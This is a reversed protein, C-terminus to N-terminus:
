KEDEFIDVNTRYDGLLHEAFYDWLMRDFYRGYKGFGHKQGAMIMFDFRKNEKILANVMRITNGPHVNSDIDGHVLLLHGKLNKALEINTPVKIEFKTEYEVDSTDKEASSEEKDKKKKVKVEKVGHHKESWWQNYINNDHNGSSSVAVKFFDPYVLMAATSMFGGGSHGYIGVKDIDIFSYRDSLQEIAYKKDALGYDRLNGYGYNHYWKSRQPSGGRNGVAIVVFGIQALGVNDNTASFGKPVSEQQPGPYVHAIIPYKKEPDFDSPKWMVGYLDTVGDAAKVKFTEPIKWGAEELRSVDITELDMIKNGMYDRLVAKSVQDIRSFNDIFYKNSKSMSISHNANEPTILKLGEGDFGIRYYHSYYPDVDKERGSAAFYLVRKSTDIKTIGRRLCVFTGTTIQNKLNGKGDYLYYHGWGDRESWHIIESDDNILYIPEGEIYTDMREELLIGIDGTEADATCIDVKHMTRDQRVFYLTESTEGWRVVFLGQDKWMEAKVKVNGKTERDFVFLEYQPVYEEGPMPYKYTKLKPRPNNLVDIVWLDGVKRRDIRMLHFKKSDKSWQARARVRKDKTTDGDDAAYSYYREGDTTLQHEVSDPDDAAMIYLNHNKAFVITASDPSFNVWEEKKPKKKVSDIFTLTSTLLNYEYRLSDVIIEVAEMEKIFRLSDITIHNPDFPKKLEKSLAAALQANDFIPKKTKELPDVLYYHTGSSNKFRYWFMESNELWKPRVSTDYLMKEIKETTFKNALEFNAKQIKDKQAFLLSTSLLLLVIPIFLCATIRNSVTKIRM